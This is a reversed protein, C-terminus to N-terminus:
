TLRTKQPGNTCVDLGFWQQFRRLFAISTEIKRYLPLTLLVPTGGLVPGEAMWRDRLRGHHLAISSAFFQKLDNACTQPCEGDRLRSGLM